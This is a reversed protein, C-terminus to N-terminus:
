FRQENARRTILHEMAALPVTGIAPPAHMASPPTHCSCSVGDTGSARESYDSPRQRHHAASALLFLTLLSERALTPGAAEGAFRLPRHCCARAVEQWAACLSRCRGAHIAVDPQRFARLRRGARSHHRELHEQGRCAHGSLRCRVRAVLSVVFRRRAGPQTTANTAASAGGDASAVPGAGSAGWSYPAHARLPTVFTTTSAGAVLKQYANPSICRDRRGRGNQCMVRMRFTPSM